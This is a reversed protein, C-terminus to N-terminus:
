GTQNCWSEPVLFLSVVRVQVEAVFRMLRALRMLRVLM